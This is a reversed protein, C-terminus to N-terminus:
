CKWKGSESQNVLALLRNKWCTRVNLQQPYFFICELRCYYMWSLLPALEPMARFNSAACWTWLLSCWSPEVFRCVVLGNYYTDDHCCWTITLPKTILEHFTSNFVYTVDSYPWTNPSGPPFFPRNTSISHRVSFLAPFWSKRGPIIM